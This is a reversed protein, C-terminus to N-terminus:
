TFKYNQIFEIIDMEKSKKVTIYSTEDVVDDLLFLNKLIIMETEAEKKIENFNNKSCNEAIEEFIAKSELIKGQLLLLKGKLLLFSFYIPFITNEKLFKLMKELNKGILTFPNQLGDDIYKEILIQSLNIFSSLRPNLDIIEDNILESYLDMAQLKNEPSGSLDLRLASIFKLRINYLDTPEVMQLFDCYKQYYDNCKKLDRKKYAGIMLNLITVSLGTYNKTKLDVDYCKLTFEEAKEENGLEHYVMAINNYLYLNTKNKHKQLENYIDLLKTLAEELRGLQYLLIAFNMKVGNIWDQNNSREYGDLAQQFLHYANENEGLITYSIALNLSAHSIALLSSSQKALSFSKNLLDFSDTNKGQYRFIIGLEALNFALRSTENEKKALDIAKTVLEIAINYKSELRYTKALQIYSEDILSYIQLQIAYSQKLELYKLALETKGKQENLSILLDTRWLFLFPFERFCDDNSINKELFKINELAQDFNYQLLNIQAELLLYYSIILFDNGSDLQKLESFTQVAKPVNFSDAFIKCKWLLYWINSNDSVVKSILPDLTLSTFEKFSKGVIIQELKKKFDESEM